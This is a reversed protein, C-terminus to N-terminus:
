TELGNIIRWLRRREARGHKSRNRAEQAWDSGFPHASTGSRAFGFGSIRFGSGSHELGEEIKASVGDGPKLAWEDFRVKLGDKQLREALPRAVAKDKASHSLFVDHTFDDAM